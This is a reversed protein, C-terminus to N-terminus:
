QGLRKKVPHRALGVLMTGVISFVFFGAFAWDYSGM